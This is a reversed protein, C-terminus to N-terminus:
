HLDYQQFYNNLHFTCANQMQLLTQQQNLFIDEAQQQQIIKFCINQNPNLQSLTPIDATIVHAIKPYGGTTQHDAMLIIIQKNPLLQLTGKTVASSIIQQNNQPSLPIGIMRFGMRDSQNSIIFSSSQLTKKAADNLWDYELGAIIRITNKNSYLKKVSAQWSLIECDKHKLVADYKQNKHFFLVDNKKLNRGKFGGAMAKNNTSFSNLWPQLNFGDKIALYGRAGKIPKKFQLVCNKEILLPTNIPVAIDNIMANFDAGSIAILSQQKFLIVSAPFHFEIVPENLRNGVLINAIQAAIFDMVGNPNIGLQQYGFRGMDQISDAIGQKIIHISM